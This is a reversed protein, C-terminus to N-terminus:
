ISIAKESEFKQRVKFEFDQCYNFQVKEPFFSENLKVKEKTRELFKKRIFITPKPLIRVRITLTSPSCAEM